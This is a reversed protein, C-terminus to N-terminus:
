QHIFVEFVRRHIIEPILLCRLLAMSTGYALQIAEEFLYDYIRPM